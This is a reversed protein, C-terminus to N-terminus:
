WTCFMSPRTAVFMGNERYGVARADETSVDTWTLSFARMTSSTLEKGWTSWLTIHILGWPADIRCYGNFHLFCSVVEIRRTARLRSDAVEQQAVHYSLFWFLRYLLGKLRLDGFIEWNSKASMWSYSYMWSTGENYFHLQSASSWTHWLMLWSNKHLQLLTDRWLREILLFVLWASSCM